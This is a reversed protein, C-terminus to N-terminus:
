LFDRDILLAEYDERSLSCDILNLFERMNVKCQRAMERLLHEDLDKNNHSLHTGIDSLLDGVTYYYYHLHKNQRVPKFGKNRLGTEVDRKKRVNGM